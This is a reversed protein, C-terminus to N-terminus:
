VDLVEDEKDGLIETWLANEADTLRRELMNLKEEIMLWKQKSFVMPVACYYVGIMRVYDKCKECDPYSCEKVPEARLYGTYRLGDTPKGWAPYKKPCIDCDGICFDGECKSEEYAWKSVSM